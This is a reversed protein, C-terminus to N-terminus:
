RWSAQTEETVNSRHGSRDIQTRTANWGSAPRGSTSPFSHNRSMQALRYTIHCTEPLLYAIPNVIANRALEGFRQPTCWWWVREGHSENEHAAGHEFDDAALHDQLYPLRNANVTATASPSAAAHPAVGLEAIARSSSRTARIQM